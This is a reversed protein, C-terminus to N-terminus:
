YITTDTTCKSKKFITKNERRSEENHQDTLASSRQGNSGQQLPSNERSVNTWAVKGCKDALSARTASYSTSRRTAQISYLTREQGTAEGALSIRWGKATELTGCSEAGTILDILSTDDDDPETNLRGSFFSLVFDQRATPKDTEDEDHAKCPQADSLGSISYFTPWAQGAHRNGVNQM